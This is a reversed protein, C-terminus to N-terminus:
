NGKEEIWQTSLWDSVVDVELFVWEVFGKIARRTKPDVGKADDIANEIVALEHSLHSIATLIVGSTTPQM